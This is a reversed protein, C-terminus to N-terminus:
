FGFESNHAGLAPASADTAAGPRLPKDIPVPITPLAEAKENVLKAAFLGRVKFHPDDLAARNDQM